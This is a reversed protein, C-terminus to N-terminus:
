EDDMLARDVLLRALTSQLYIPQDPESPVAKPFVLEGQEDRIHFAEPIPSYNSDGEITTTGIPPALPLTGDGETSPVMARCMPESPGEEASEDVLDLEHNGSGSTIKKPSSKM